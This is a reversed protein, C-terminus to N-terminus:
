KIKRIGNESYAKASAKLIYRGAIDPTPKDAGEEWVEYPVCQTIKELRTGKGYKKFQEQRITTIKDVLKKGEEKSILLSINYNDYQKSPQFIGVYGVVEGKQTTYREKVSEKKAM